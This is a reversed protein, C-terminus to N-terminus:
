QQRRGRQLARPHAGRRGLDGPQHVGGAAAALVVRQDAPDARRAHSRRPDLQGDRHPRRAEDVRVMEAATDFPRPAFMAGFVTVVLDFSADDLGFLNSADGEEFTCNTLGLQEARAQGAAVLNSAIDVGRVNAGAQAAPIATTGDGCGLDLVDLGPTVGIRRM